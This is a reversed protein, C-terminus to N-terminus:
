LYIINAEYLKEVIEEPTGAGMIIENVNRNPVSDSIRDLWYSVEEDTGEGNIIRVVLELIEKKTLKKM